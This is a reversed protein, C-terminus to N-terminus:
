FVNLFHLCHPSVSHSLFTFSLLVSCMFCSSIQGCQGVVGHSGRWVEIEDLIYVWSLFHFLVNFVNKVLHIYLGCDYTTAYLCIYCYFLFLATHQIIESLKGKCYNIYLFWYQLYIFVTSRLKYWVFWWLCLLGAPCPCWLHYYGTM